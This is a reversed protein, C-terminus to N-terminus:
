VIQWLYKELFEAYIDDAENNVSNYNYYLYAKDKSFSIGMTKFYRYLGVITASFRWDSPCIKRDYTKGAIEFNGEEIV